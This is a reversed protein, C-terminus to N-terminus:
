LTWWCTPRLIQSRKWQCNWFRSFIKLVSDITLKPFAFPQKNALVGLTLNSNNVYESQTSTLHVNVFVIIGQVLNPHVFDNDESLRLMFYFVEFSFQLPSGLGPGLTPEYFKFPSFFVSEIKDSFHFTKAKVIKQSYVEQETAKISFIGCLQNFVIRRWPFTRTAASALTLWSKWTPM